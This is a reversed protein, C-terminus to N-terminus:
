KPGLEKTEENQRVGQTQKQTNPSDAIDGARSLLPRRFFLDQLARCRVKGQKGSGPVEPAGGINDTPWDPAAKHKLQTLTNASTSNLSTNPLSAVGDFQLASERHQGRLLRCQHAPGAMLLVTQGWGM